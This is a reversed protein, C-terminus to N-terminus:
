YIQFFIGRARLLSVQRTPVLADPAMEYFSVINTSAEISDADATLLFYQNFKKSSCRVYVGINWSSRKVANKLANVIM